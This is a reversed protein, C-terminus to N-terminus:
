KMEALKKKVEEASTIISTYEKTSQFDAIMQAQVELFGADQYNDAILQYVEAKNKFTPKDGSLKCHAKEGYYILTAVYDSGTFEDGLQAWFYEFFLMGFNLTISKEKLQYTFM